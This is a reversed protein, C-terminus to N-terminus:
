SKAHATVKKRRSLSGKKARSIKRQARKILTSDVTRASAHEGTSLTMRTKLGMDMGVPNEPDAVLHVPREPHKVVM